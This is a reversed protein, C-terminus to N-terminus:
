ATLDMLVYDSALKSRSKLIKTAFFGTGQFFLLAPLNTEPVRLKIKRRKENLKKELKQIMTRGVGQRHYAPHVAITLITYHTKELVYMIYGIIKEELEVVLGINNRQHLCYTFDDEEWPYEFNLEDIKQMQPLDNRIAWRIHLNQLDM